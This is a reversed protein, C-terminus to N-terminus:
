QKIFTYREGGEEGKWVFLYWPPKNELAGTEGSVLVSYSGYIDKDDMKTFTLKVEKFGQGKEMKWKGSGSVRKGEVDKKSTFFTFYEAPLSKGIFSSDKNLELMAGDSSVWNGLIDSQTPEKMQTNCAQFFMSLMAGLGILTQKM